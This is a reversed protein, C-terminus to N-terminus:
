LRSMMVRNPCDRDKHAKLGDFRIEIDCLDCKVLRKECFKEQHDKFFCWVLSQQCDPCSVLRKLCYEAKHIEVEDWIIKLSCLDCEVPQKECIDAAHRKLDIRPVTQNCLSCSVKLDRIIQRIPDSVYTTVREYRCNPCRSCSLICGECYLQHCCNTAVADKCVDLCITCDFKDSM